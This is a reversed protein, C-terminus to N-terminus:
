DKQILIKEEDLEAGDILDKTLQVLFQFNDFQDKVTVSDSQEFQDLLTARMVEVSTYSGHNLIQKLTIFTFASKDLLQYPLFEPYPQVVYTTGKSYYSARSSIVTSKTKFDNPHYRFLSDLHPNLVKFEPLM